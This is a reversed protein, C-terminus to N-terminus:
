YGLGAGGSLVCVCCGLLLGHWVQGVNLGFELLLFSSHVFEGFLIFM